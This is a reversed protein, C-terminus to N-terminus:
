RIKPLLREVWFDKKWEILNNAPNSPASFWEAYNENVGALKCTNSTPNVPRYNGTESM